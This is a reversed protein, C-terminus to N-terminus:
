EAVRWGRAGPSWFFLGYGKGAEVGQVRKRVAWKTAVQVTWLYPLDAALRAHLQHYLAARRTLDLEHRAREMLADAAPNRYRVINLGAPPVQSSHFLSYPDPDPDASWGVLAAQYNGRMLLDFFAATDLKRIEATVGIGRLAAQYIVAQDEAQKNGAPVLVTLSFTRGALLKRAGAPDYPPPVVNPDYAWQDPTFPGSISRAQGQYLRDIITKRDFAMSLALRVQPDRLLLDDLNWAVTNYALLYVDHFTVDRAREKERAWIDPKVRMEDIDGRQLAAWAAGDDGIVRFVIRELAPKERWYDPRRLLVVREGAKKEALRYPGNGVARDNFDKKFDGTGYVHEPLVAINFSYLLAARPETFAVVITRDDIAKTGKRDLGEFWASFQPSEEDVIRNITFLVDRATVPRGDEFTARPDLHLTYARGDPSVEWSRALGPVPQLNRDLDVLPDYLYELVYREYESTHLVYNLTAVDSELRRTIRNEVPKKAPADSPAHAPAPQEGRCALLSLLLVVVASRASENTM